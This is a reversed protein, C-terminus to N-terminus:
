LMLEVDFDGAVLNVVFFDVIQEAGVNGALTSRRQPRPFVGTGTGVHFVQGHTVDRRLFVDFHVDVDGVFVAGRRRRGHIVSTTATVGDKLDNQM